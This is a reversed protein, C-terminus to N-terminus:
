AQASNKSSVLMSGAPLKYKKQTRWRIFSPAIFGVCALLAHRANPHHMLVEMARRRAAWFNGDLAAFEMERCLYYAYMTAFQRQVLKSEGFALNRANSVALCMARAVKRHYNLSGPRSLKVTDLGAQRLLLVERTVAFRGRFALRFLLDNDEGYSLSEDFGGLAVLVDRRVLWSSLMTPHGGPQSVFAPASDCEWSKESNIFCESQDKSRWNTASLVVDAARMLPVQRELKEPLWEDDSDLFAVLEGRAARVGANRAASPGANSQRIVRVADGFRSLVETTGDTSGDDVIILGRATYTQALVSRVAPEISHARNYTPIIVSVLPNMCSSGM